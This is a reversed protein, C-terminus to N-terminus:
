TSRPPFWNSHSSMKSTLFQEGLFEYDTEQCPNPELTSSKPREASLKFTMVDMWILHSSPRIWFVPDHRNNSTNSLPCTFISFLQFKLALSVCHGRHPRSSPFYHPVASPLSISSFVKYQWLLLTVTGRKQWENLHALAGRYATTDTRRTGGLRDTPHDTRWEVNASEGPAGM